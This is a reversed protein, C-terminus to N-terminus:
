DSYRFATEYGPEYEIKGVGPVSAAISRVLSTEWESLYPGVLRLVGSTVKASIELHHTRRDIVLAALVETALYDNEVQALSEPTPQFDAELMLHRLVSCATELSMRAMNISADYLAPDRIDVGYMWRAWRTREQDQRHVYARADEDSYGMRERARAIRVEMPAILRVLVFHRVPEVLLHGSYGFYALCGQRAYELLARKMLIQYPRRLQSFEDYAQAAKEIRATVRSAIDGYSNVSELLDERTVCRIGEHRALCDGIMHGGTMSGRSILLVTRTEM